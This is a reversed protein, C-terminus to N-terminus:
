WSGCDGDGVFEELEDDTVIHFVLDGRENLSTQLMTDANIGPSDNADKWAEYDEAPLPLFRFKAM